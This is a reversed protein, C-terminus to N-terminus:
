FHCQKKHSLNGKFSIFNILSFYPVYPLMTGLILLAGYITKIRKVISEM